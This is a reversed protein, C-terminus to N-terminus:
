ADKKVHDAPSSNKGQEKKHQKQISYWFMGGLAVVTGCIGKVTPTQQFLFWGVALTLCVKAQGV